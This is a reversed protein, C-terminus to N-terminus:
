ASRLFRIKNIFLGPILNNQNKTLMNILDYDFNFYNGINKRTKVKLVKFKMM